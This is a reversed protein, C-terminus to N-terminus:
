MLNNIQTVLCSIKQQNVDFNLTSVRNQLLIPISPKLPPTRFLLNKYIQEYELIIDIMM